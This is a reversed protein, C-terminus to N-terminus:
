TILTTEQIWEGNEYMWVQVEAEDAYFQMPIGTCDVFGDWIIWVAIMAGAKM